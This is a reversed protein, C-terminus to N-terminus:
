RPLATGLEPPQAEEVRMPTEGKRLSKIFAVLKMLDEETIQGNGQKDKLQFPPMIPKYGAVVQKDPILISNRIYTEDAKVKTGDSLTITRGYLEELSPARGDPTASHCSICQLKSFLKRGELALSRDARGKRLENSKPPPEDGLLWQEYDADEMVTVWGIMRSHETGCYAACFLHYRGPKTAQFWAYSYRGPIVDQKVRFAPVSFDHIVDESTMILKVPKNAPVHLENIESQGEPHQIH